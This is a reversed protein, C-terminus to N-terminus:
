SRISSVTDSEGLSCVLSDSCGERDRGGLLRGTARSRVGRGSPHANVTVGAAGGDELGTDVEGDGARAHAVITRAGNGHEARGVGASTVGCGPVLPVGVVRVVEGADGEGRAVLDGDGYGRRRLGAARRRDRVDALALRVTECVNELWGYNHSYLAFHIM